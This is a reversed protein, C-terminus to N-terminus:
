KEGRRPTALIDRALDRVLRTLVASDTTAFETKYEKRVKELHEVFSDDPQNVFFTKTWVTLTKAVPSKTHAAWAARELLTEVVGQSITRTRQPDDAWRQLSTRSKVLVEADKAALKDKDLRNLHDLSFENGVDNVRSVAGRWLPHATELALEHLRVYVQPHSLSSFALLAAERVALTEKADEMVERFDGIPCDKPDLGGGFQTFALLAAQRVEPHPHRTLLLVKGVWPERYRGSQVFAKITRLVQHVYVKGPEIRQRDGFEALDRPADLLRFVAGPQLPPLMKGLEGPKTHSKQLAKLDSSLPNGRGMLGPLEKEGRAFHAADAYQLLWALSKGPNHKVLMKRTETEGHDVEMQRQWAATRLWQPADARALAWTAAIGGQYLPEHLAIMELFDFEQREALYPIMDKARKEDTRAIQQYLIWRGEGDRANWEAAAVPPKLLDQRPPPKDGKPDDALAGPPFQEPPVYGLSQFSAIRVRNGAVQSTVRLRPVGDFWLETTQRGEVLNATEVVLELPYERTEALFDVRGDPRLRREPIPGRRGARWQGFSAASGDDAQTKVVLSLQGTLINEIQEATYRNAGRVGAFGPIPQVQPGVASIVLQLSHGGDNEVIKVRIDALRRGDHDDHYAFRNPPLLKPPSAPQEAPVPALLVAVGLVLGCVLLRTIRRIIHM